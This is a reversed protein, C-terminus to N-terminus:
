PPTATPTAAGAAGSTPTAVPTEATTKMDVTQVKDAMATAGGSMCFLDERPVARDRAALDNSPRRPRAVILYRAAHPIAGAPERYTYSKGPAVCSPAARRGPM